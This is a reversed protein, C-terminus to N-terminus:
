GTIGAISCVGLAICFVLRSVEFELDSADFDFLFPPVRFNLFGVLGRDGVRLACIVSPARLGWSLVKLRIDLGGSRYLLLAM